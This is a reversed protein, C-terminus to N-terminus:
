PRKHDLSTVEPSQSRSLGWLTLLIGGVVAIPKWPTLTEPVYYRLPREVEGVIQYPIRVGDLVDAVYGSAPVSGWANHQLYDRSLELHADLSGNSYARAHLEVDPAWDKILGFTQGFNLQFITHRWGGEIMASYVRNLDMPNSLILM